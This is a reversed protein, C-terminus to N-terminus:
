TPLPSVALAGFGLSFMLSSRFATFSTPKFLFMEYFYTIAAMFGLSYVVTMGLIMMCFGLAPLHSTSLLTPIFVLSAPDREKKFPTLTVYAEKREIRYEYIFFAAPIVVGVAVAWLLSIPVCVM